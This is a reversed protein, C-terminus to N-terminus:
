RLLKHVQSQIITYVKAELDKSPLKKLKKTGLTSTLEIYSDVPMGQQKFLKKGCQVACADILIRKRFKEIDSPIEVSSYCFPPM